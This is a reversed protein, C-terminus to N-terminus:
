ADTDDDNTTDFEFRPVGIQRRIEPPYKQLLKKHQELAYEEPTVGAELAGMRIDYEWKTMNNSRTPDDSWVDASYQGPGTNDNPLVQTGKTADKPKATLGPEPCREDGGSVTLPSGDVTTARPTVPTPTNAGGWGYGAAGNDDTAASAHVAFLLAVLMLLVGVFRLSNAAM